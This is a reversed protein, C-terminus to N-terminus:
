MMHYHFQKSLEIIILPAMFRGPMDHENQMDRMTFCFLFYRLWVFQYHLTDFNAVEVGIFHM